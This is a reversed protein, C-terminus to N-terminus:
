SQPFWMYKSFNLSNDYKLEMSANTKAEQLPQRCGVAHPEPVAPPPARVARRRAGRGPHTHRLARRRRRPLVDGVVAQIRGAVRSRLWDYRLRVVANPRSTPFTDLEEDLEDPHVAEASSFRADMHPPRRRRYSWHGAASMYLFMTPLILEPFCVLTVFLVHVLVTAAPNKWRCV